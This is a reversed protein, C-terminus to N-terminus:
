VSLTHISNLLLSHIDLEHKCSPCTFKQVIIDPGEETKNIFSPYNLSHIKTITVKKTVIENENYAQQKTQCHPCVYTKM